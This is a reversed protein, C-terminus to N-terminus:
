KEFLNSQAALYNKHQQHYWCAYNKYRNLGGLFGPYRRPPDVYIVKRPPDPIRSSVWNFWKSGIKKHEVQQFPMIEKVPEVFLEIQENPGILGRSRLDKKITRRIYQAIIGQYEEKAIKEIIIFEEPLWNVPFKRYRDESTRNPNDM